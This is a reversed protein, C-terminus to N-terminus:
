GPLDPPKDRENTEKMLEILRNMSKAISRLSDVAAAMFLVVIIFGAFLLLSVLCPDM